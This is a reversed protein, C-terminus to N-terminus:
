RKPPLARARQTSTARMATDATTMAPMIRMRGTSMGRTTMFMATMATAKTYRRVTATLTVPTRHIRAHLSHGAYPSAFTRKM